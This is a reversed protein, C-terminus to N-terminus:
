RDFVVRLEMTGALQKGPSFDRLEAFEIFHGRKGAFEGTGGIVQGYGDPRPGLTNLNKWSGQWSKNFLLGPLVFRKFLTWNDEVQYVFLAGRGPVIVTWTTHTMVRGKILRSQEHGSELETALAVINGNDDRMKNILALGDKVNPESLVRETAPIMPFITPVGSTILSVVDSDRAVSLTYRFIEPKPANAEFVPLIRETRTAHPFPFYYLGMVLLAAGLIVGGLFLLANKLLIM